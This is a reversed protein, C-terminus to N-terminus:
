KLMSAVEQNFEKYDVNGYDSFQPNLEYNIYHACYERILDYLSWNYIDERNYDDILFNNFYIRYVTVSDTYKKEEGGSMYSKEREEKLIKYEFDEELKEDFSDRVEQVNKDFQDQSEWDAYMNLIDDCVDNRLDNLHHGDSKISEFDVDQEKLYDGDYDELMNKLLADANEDTLLQGFLDTMSPRHHSYYDDNDVHDSLYKKYYSRNSLTMDAIDDIDIDAYIRKGEIGYNKFNYYKAIAIESFEQIDNEVVLFIDLYHIKTENNKLDSNDLLFKGDKVTLYEKSTLDDAYLYVKYDSELYDIMTQLSDTLDKKSNNQASYMYINIAPYYEKNALLPINVTELSNSEIHEKSLFGYSVDFSFGEDSLEVFLESIDDDDIPYNYLYNDAQSENISSWWPQDPHIDGTGGTQFDSKVLKRGMRKEFDDINFQEFLKIYKM